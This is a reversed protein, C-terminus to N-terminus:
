AIAPIPVMWMLGVFIISCLVTLGSSVAAAIVPGGIVFASASVTLISVIIPIEEPAVYDKIEMQM